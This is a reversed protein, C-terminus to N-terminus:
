CQNFIAAKRVTSRGVYDMHCDLWLVNHVFFVGFHFSPSAATWFPFPTRATSTDNLSQRKRKYVWNCISCLLPLKSQPLPTPSSPMVANLHHPWTIIANDAHMTNVRSAMRPRPVNASLTQVHVWHYKRAHLM